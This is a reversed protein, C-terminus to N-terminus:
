RNNKRAEPLVASLTKGMLGGASLLNECDRNNFYIIQRENNTIIVLDKSQRIAQSLLLMECELRLREKNIHVRHATDVLIDSLKNLDIPKLLFRDVNSEIANIFYEQDNSPLRCYIIPLIPKSHIEMAVTLRLTYQYEFIRCFSTRNKKFYTELGEGGNTTELVTKVPAVINEPLDERVGPEDETVMISLGHFINFNEMISIYIMPLFFYLLIIRRKIESEPSTSIKSAHPNSRM